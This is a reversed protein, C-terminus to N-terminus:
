AEIGIDKMTLNNDKLYVSLPKWSLTRIARTSLKLTVMKGLEPIFLRRKQINARQVRKTKV